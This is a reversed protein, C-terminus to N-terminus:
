AGVANTGMIHSNDYVEIRRPPAPLGFSQGLAVLLKGQSATDALRRALAEKANRQAYEVLAKREGRQPQHVEVRNEARSSLAAAMLEADDIAHSVLVIRPAPKDDYFQSIFSALVEDPTM